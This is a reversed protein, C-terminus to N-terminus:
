EDAKGRLQCLVEKLELVDKVIRNAGARQLEEANGYGYLVGISDLGNKRAGLIDHERDGVMVTEKKKANMEKLVYAIVEAKDTRGNMLAGGVFDFYSELGFHELIQKAYKEPKSTAVCLTWEKEKLTKLLEEMGDYVRNEFIGTPSYYERYYEVAKEGEEETLGYFSIFSEKLPPGIFKTLNWLDTEIIGYRKLAYQVSKTIGIMPDTLTGDLDFLVIQKKGMTIKRDM